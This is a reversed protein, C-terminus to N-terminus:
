MGEGASHSKIWERIQDDGMQEFDVKPDSVFIGNFDWRWENGPSPPWFINKQINEVAQKATDLSASIIEASLEVNGIEEKNEGLIFYWFEINEFLINKDCAALCEGYIPLQVSLIRRGISGKKILPYKMMNAFAENKKGGVSLVHSNLSNKNWTKYDIVSWKKSDINEDVRDIFGKVNLSLGNIEIEESVAKEVMRIRWGNRAWEAQIDAFALIRGELSQLQLEINLPMNYYKRRIEPFIIDTFVKRIDDADTLQNDGRKIQIEAYKRLAMHVLTGFDDAGLEHKDNYPQMKMAKKLFYTFPCKIYADISSPSYQEPPTYENKLKLPKDVKRVYSASINPIDDYLYKIRGPLREDGCLYLLRSSRCIDGVDNTRAIYAHVAHQAHSHLLESFLWTDRALRDDNSVLGLAKRLKDPMFPHGVVSDPVKGEHFGALAIREASSWVLELWGETRISHPNDPELSFCAIELERRAIVKQESLSMRPFLVFARELASLFERVSDVAAYFEKENVGNSKVRLEYVWKLVFRIYGAIGRERTANVLVDEVKRGAEFFDALYSKDIEGLEDDASFKFKAPIENPVYTNQAIDVGYLVNKRTSLDFELRTLVDDSRFFSVFEKWPLDENGYMSILCQIMNGLSSRALLHREPNHVVYGKSLFVGAIGTFLSGDCLGLAPLECDSSVPPYDAALAEALASSNTNRIIDSDTLIHLNPRNENIWCKTQPRGFEDFRWDESRDVHMLVTINKGISMQYKLVDELVRIPDALAPLVVELIEDSLAAPTEKAIQVVKSPHTLGSKELEAFFEKELEALEQWRVKEDGIESELVDGCREFVDKILLGHGALIRWIDQLQGLVSLLSKPDDFSNPQFLHTWEDLVLAGDVTHRRPRTELFRLFVASMEASSPEIYSEAMPRILQMPQMVKPPLLGGWGRRTAEKALSLRLNRGSQATPVVVLIHSLSYAGDLMRVRGEYRDDGCLWSVVETLLLSTPNLFEKKIM